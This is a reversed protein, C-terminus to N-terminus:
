LQPAFLLESKEVAEWMTNAELVEVGHHPSRRAQSDRLGLQKAGFTNGLQNLKIFHAPM